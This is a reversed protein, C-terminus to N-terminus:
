SLKKNLPSIKKQLDSWTGETNCAGRGGLPRKCLVKSIVSPLKKVPRIGKVYVRETKVAM